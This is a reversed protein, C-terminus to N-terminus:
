ETNINNKLVEIAFEYQKIFLRNNKLITEYEVNVIKDVLYAQSAHANASEYIALQSKLLEIPTIHKM